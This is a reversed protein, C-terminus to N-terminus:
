SRQALSPSCLRILCLSLRTKLIRDYIFTKTKYCLLVVKLNHENIYAYLKKVVQPRSVQIGCMFFIFCTLSVVGIGREQYWNHQCAGCLSGPAQQHRKDEQADQVIINQFLSCISLHVEPTCAYSRAYVMMLICLPM